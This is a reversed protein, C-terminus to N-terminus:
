LQKWTGAAEELWAWFKQITPARNAAITPGSGVKISIGNLRAVVRFGDEDTIDDGAFLPRRALFPAEQMFEEVADAKTHADMKIEFVMKGPQLHCRQDIAAMEEALARCQEELDPRKRYHLSVSYRKKEVITGEHADAFQRIQGAINSLLGQDIQVCHTRGDASRREMGHVGALPLRLPALFNDLEEIARGSVIAVAGATADQITRLSNLIRPTVKVQRPDDVIEALTGDFDLFLAIALPDIESPHILQSPRDPPTEANM